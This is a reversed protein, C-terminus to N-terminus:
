MSEVADLMARVASNLFDTKYGRQKGASLADLRTKLENDLLFTTRTHTEEKTKANRKIDWNREFQQALASQLRALENDTPTEVEPTVFKEIPQQLERDQRAM